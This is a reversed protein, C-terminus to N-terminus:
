IHNFDEDIYGCFEFEKLVLTGTRGTPLFETNLVNAEEYSSKTELVGSKVLFLIAASLFVAVVLFILIEMMVSAKQNM